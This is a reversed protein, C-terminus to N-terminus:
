ELCSEQRCDNKDYPTYWKSQWEQDAYVIRGECDYVWDGFPANTAEYIFDPHVCVSCINKQRDVSVQSPESLKVWCDADGDNGTDLYWDPGGAMELHIMWYLKKCEVCDAPETIRGAAFSFKDGDVEGVVAPYKAHETQFKWDWTGQVTFEPMVVGDNFYLVAYGFCNNQIDMTFQHHQECKEKEAFETGFKSTASELEFPKTWLGSDTETRTPDLVGFPDYFTKVQSWGNCTNSGLLKETGSLTEFVPHSGPDDGQETKCVAGTQADLYQQTWHQTTTMVGDRTYNGGGSHYWDGFIAPPVDVVPGYSKSQQVQNQPACVVYCSAVTVTKSSSDKEIFGWNFLGIRGYDYGKVVVNYTGPATITYSVSVKTGYQDHSAVQVGDVFMTVRHDNWKNPNYTGTVTIDECNGSTTIAVNCAFAAVPVLLAIVMLAFILRKM